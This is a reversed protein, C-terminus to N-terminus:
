KAERQDAKVIVILIYESMCYLVLAAELQSDASNILSKSSCM